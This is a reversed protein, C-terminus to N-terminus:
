SQCQKTQAHTNKPAKGCWNAVVRVEHQQRTPVRRRGAKERVIRIVVRWRVGVILDGVDDDVLNNPRPRLDHGLRVRQEQLAVRLPTALDHTLAAKQTENRRHVRTATAGKGAWQPAAPTDVMQSSPQRMDLVAIASLAFLMATAPDVLSGPTSLPTNNNNNNNNDDDDINNKHDNDDDDHENDSDDNHQRNQTRTTAAHSRAL